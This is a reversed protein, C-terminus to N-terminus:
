IGLTLTYNGPTGTSYRVRLHLVLTTSGRNTISWSRSQGVSGNQDALRRGLATYAALGPGTGAAGTLSVSLTRGKPLAVRFYDNDATSAISGSVTAPVSALVQAQATSDNGESDNVNIPDPTVLAQAAQVAATANVIGAGCQSCTAPFSRVTGVLLNKVEDPTLGPNVAFMLAAAGAVVPTAMSTGMQGQYSDSAPAGSGSNYTSLITAGSDGGPAALTVNAGYNSYSARGGGIGTAAVTIVGSCNAPTTSSANTNDNGAAVIVVAGAARASNIAAQTTSDCSGTGGLSLNLVQAPNANAPVGAVSGGAAWIIGDAIDSTYGGCRGLVRIPLIKAHHALGVVGAANNGVAAIIGAVHTGHWSSSRAPSGTGCFGSSVGDGPDYADSDRGDGDNATTTSTIFDHGSVLNAALDAHPRVGTDLVAVTVGSGTALDWATPARVGGTTDSWHWQQAYQPDNPTALPVLLRDPEAYEISSDGAMMSSAIAQVEVHSMARDLVYVQAGSATRRFPVISSGQRNAAVRAAMQARMSPGAGAPGADNRYKVILRDTTPNPEVTRIGMPQATAAAAGIALLGAGLATRLIEPLKRTSM